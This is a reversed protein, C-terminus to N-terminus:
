KNKDDQTTQKKYILHQSISFDKNGIFYFIGSLIAPILTLLVVLFVQLYSYQSVYTSSNILSMLPKVESNLMKYFITFNFFLGFKSLVFLLSVCFLPVSGLLAIKFGRFNDKKMHGFSQKNLDRHGLGWMYNYIPLSYVILLIAGLGLMGLPTDYLMGLSISIIESLIICALHYGFFSFSPKILAKFSNNDTEINEINKM